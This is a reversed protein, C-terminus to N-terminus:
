KSQERITRWLRRRSYPDVGASSEDLLILPPLGIMAGLTTLKRKNGGSLAFANTNYFHFLEFKKAYLEAFKVVMNEPIGKLRALLEIQNKVTIM